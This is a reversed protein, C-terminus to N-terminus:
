SFRYALIFRVQLAKKKGTFGMLLFVRGPKFGSEL